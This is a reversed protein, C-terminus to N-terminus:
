DGSGDAAGADSRATGADPSRRSEIEDRSLPAVELEPPADFTLRGGESVLALAGPGPDVEPNMHPQCRSGEPPTPCYPGSNREILWVRNARMLVSPGGKVEVLVVTCDDGTSITGDGNCVRASSAGSPPEQDLAAVDGRELTFEESRGLRAPRIAATLAAFDRQCDASDKIRTLRLEVRDSARNVLFPFVPDHANSTALCLHMGVIVGLPRLPRRAPEPRALLRWSLPLVVLALLDSLDPWLAWRLGLWRAARVVAEAATPSLETAVYIGAVAALALEKRRRLRVPLLCGLLVPAVILFAFDSLKGTLWLPAVGRGKLMNDNVFLVAVAFWWLRQGLPRLDFVGPETPSSTM